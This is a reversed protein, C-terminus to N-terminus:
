DNASFLWQVDLAARFQQHPLLRRDLVEKEARVARHGLDIRGRPAETDLAQHSRRQRVVEGVHHRLRRLGSSEDQFTGAVPPAEEVRGRAAQRPPARGQPLRSPGARPQVGQEVARTKEFSGRVHDQM